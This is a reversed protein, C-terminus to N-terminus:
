DSVYEGFVKIIACVVVSLGYEYASVYYLTEYFSSLIFSVFMVGPVLSLVFKPIFGKIKVGFFALALMVGSAMLTYAKKNGGSKFVAISYSVIFYTPAVSVINSLAQTRLESSFDFDLSTAMRYAPLNVAIHISSIFIMAFIKPTNRM